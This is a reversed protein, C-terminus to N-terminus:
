RTNRGIQYTLGAVLFVEAVSALLPLAAHQGSAWYVTLAFLATGGYVLLDIALQWAQHSRWARRQRRVVEWRFVPRQVGLLEQMIPDLEDRIYAGIEHVKRDNSLHIWGLVVTAVPLALLLNAGFHAVVGVATLVLIPIGDRTILRAQQERKLQDYEARRVALEEITADM